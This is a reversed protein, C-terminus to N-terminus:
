EWEWGVLPEEIQMPRTQWRQHEEEARLAEQYDQSGVLGLVALAVVGIAMAMVMKITQRRMM